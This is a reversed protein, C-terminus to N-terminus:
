ERKNLKTLEKEAKKSFTGSSAALEEFIEKAEEERGLKIYCLALMFRAEEIHSSSPYQEIIDDFYIKASKYHGSKCYLKGNELGKKSLKDFCKEKIGKAEEILESEPFRTIFRDIVKVAEHTRRQDLYYAPSAKYYTVGLKYHADDLYPSEPFNQICFRFEVAANEYDHTQLYSDGLYFQADDIYESGPHEFILRKFGDIATGYKKRDYYEKSLKFLEDSPLGQRITEKTCNLLLLTILLSLVRIKV